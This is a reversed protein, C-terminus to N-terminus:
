AVSPPLVPIVAIVTPNAKKMETKKAGIKADMGGQAVPPARTMAPESIIRFYARQYDSAEPVTSVAHIRANAFDVPVIHTVSNRREQGNDNDGQCVLGDKEREM